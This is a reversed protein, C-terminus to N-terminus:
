AKKGFFVWSILVVTVVITLMALLQNNEWLAQFPSALVVLSTDPVLSDASINSNDFSPKEVSAMQDGLQGLKDTSNNLGGVADQAQQNQEPTGNIASDIKNDIDGLLDNTGSDINVSALLRDETDGFVVIDYWISNLDVDTWELLMINEYFSIKQVDKKAVFSASISHTQLFANYVWDVPKIIDTTGDVYYVVVERYTHVEDDLPFWIEGYEDEMFINLSINDIRFNVSDGSRAIVSYENRISMMELSLYTGYNVPVDGAEWEYFFKSNNELFVTDYLHNVDFAINYLKVKATIDFDTVESASVSVPLLICLLLVFSVACISAISRKFNMNSKM